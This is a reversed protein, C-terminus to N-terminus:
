CVNKQGGIYDTIEQIIDLFESHTMDLKITNIPGYVWQLNEINNSGGRSKPIIHDLSTNHGLILQRGTYPCKGNQKVFLFKLSEWFHQSGLNVLSVRKLYCIECLVGGCPEGKGCRVCLGNAVKKDYRKKKFYLHKVNCAECLRRNERSPFNGCRTCLGEQIRKNRLEKCRQIWDSKNKSSSM